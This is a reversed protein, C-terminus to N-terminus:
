GVEAYESEEKSKELPIVRYVIERKITVNDRYVNKKIENILTSAGKPTVKCRSIIDDLTIVGGQANAMEILQTSRNSWEKHKKTRDFIYVGCGVRYINTSERYVQGLVTSAHRQCTLGTVHKCITYSTIERHENLIFFDRVRNAINRNGM